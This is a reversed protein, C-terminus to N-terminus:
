GHPEMALSVLKVLSLLVDVYQLLGVSAQQYSLPAPACPTCLLPQSFQVQEAKLLSPEPSVNRSDLVLLQTKKSTCLPLVLFLPGLDSCPFIQSLPFFHVVFKQLSLIETLINMAYTYLYMWIFYMFGKLLKLFMKFTPPIAACTAKAYCKLKDLMKSINRTAYIERMRYAMNM